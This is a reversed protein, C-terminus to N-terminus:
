ALFSLADIHLPFFFFCVKNNGAAQKILVAHKEEATAMDVIIAIFRNLVRNSSQETLCDGGPM